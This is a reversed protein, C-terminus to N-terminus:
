SGWPAETRGEQCRSATVLGSISAHRCCQQRGRGWAVTAQRLEIVPELSGRRRVTRIRGRALALGCALLAAAATKAARATSPCRERRRCSLWPGGITTLSRQGDRPVGLP